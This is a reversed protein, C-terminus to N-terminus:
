YTWPVTVTVRDTLIQQSIGIEIPRWLRLTETASLTGLTSSTGPTSPISPTDPTSPTSLTSPTGPTSRNCFTSPTGPIHTVPNTAVKVGVCCLFCLKGYLIEENKTYYLGSTYLKGEAHLTFILYEM